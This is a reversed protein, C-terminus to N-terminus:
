PPMKAAAALALELEGSEALYDMVFHNATPVPGLRVNPLGALNEAQQRDVPHKAAYYLSVATGRGQAYLERINPWDIEGAERLESVRAYVQRETQELGIDLSTPGGFALVQDAGLRTGYSLASFVGGSHGLLVLKRTNLQSLQRRLKGYTQEINGLSRVGTLFLHHSFDRLYIVNIPRHSLCCHHLLNLQVGFHNRIDCFVVFTVTAGPKAVVQVDKDQDDRFEDRPSDVDGLLPVRISLPRANPWRATYSKLLQRAVDFRVPFNFVENLQVSAEAVSTALGEVSGSRDYALIEEYALLCARVQARGRLALPRDDRGASPPLRVARLREIRAGFSALAHPGAARVLELLQQADDTEIEM